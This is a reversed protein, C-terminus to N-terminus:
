ASPIDIPAAFQIEHENEVDEGELYLAVAEEINNKAEEFTDGESFCGPFIPVSVSYRGDKEKTFVGLYAM